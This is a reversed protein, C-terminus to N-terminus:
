NPKKQSGRRGLAKSAKGAGAEKSMFFALTIIWHPQRSGFRHLNESAPMGLGDGPESLRRSFLALAPFRPTHPV